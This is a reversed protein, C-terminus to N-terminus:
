EDLSTVRTDRLLEVSCSYGDAPNAAGRKQHSCSASFFSEVVSIYEKATRIRSVSRGGVWAAATLNTGFTARREKKTPLGIIRSWDFAKEPLIPFRISKATNEQRQPPHPDPCM